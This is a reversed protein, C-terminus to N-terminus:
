HRFMARFLKRAVKVVGWVLRLPWRFLSCVLGSVKGVRRRGELMEAKDPTSVEVLVEVLLVRAEDREDESAVRESPNSGKEHVVQLTKGNFYQLLSTV